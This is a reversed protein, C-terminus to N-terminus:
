HNKRSPNELKGGEIFVFMGIGIPFKVVPGMYNATKIYGPGPFLTVQSNLYFRYLYSIIAFLHISNERM